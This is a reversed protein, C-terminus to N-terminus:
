NNTFTSDVTNKTEVTKTKRRTTKTKKKQRFILTAIAVIGGVITSIVEAPLNKM